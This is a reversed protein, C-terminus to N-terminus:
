SIQEVSVVVVLGGGHGGHGDQGDQGDGGVGSGDGGGLLHGDYNVPHCVHIGHHYCAKFPIAKEQPATANRLAAWAQGGGFSCRDLLHGEQFRSMKDQTTRCMSPCKGWHGCIYSSMCCNRVRFELVKQRNAPLLPIGGEMAGVYHVGKNGVVLWWYTRTFSLSRSVVPLLDAALGKHPFRWVTGM